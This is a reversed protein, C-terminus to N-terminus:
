GKTVRQRLRVAAFPSENTPQMDRSKRRDFPVCALVEKVVDACGRTKQPKQKSGVTVRANSFGGCGHVPSKCHVFPFKVDHWCCLFPAKPLEGAVGMVSVPVAGLAQM